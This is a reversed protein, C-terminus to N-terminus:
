EPLCTSVARIRDETGGHSGVEAGRVGHLAMQGPGALGKGLAGFPPSPIHRRVGHLHAYELVVHPHEVRLPRHLAPRSPLARLLFARLVQGLDLPAEPLYWIHVM